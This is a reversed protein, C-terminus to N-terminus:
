LAMSGWLLGDLICFGVVDGVMMGEIRCGEIRKSVIYWNGSYLVMCFVVPQVINCKFCVCCWHHMQLMHLM